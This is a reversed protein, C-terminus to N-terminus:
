KKEIKRLLFLKELYWSNIKNAEDYADIWMLGLQHLDFNPLSTSLLCHM